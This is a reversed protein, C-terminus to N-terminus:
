RKYQVMTSITIYIQPDEAYNHYCIKNNEMIRALPLMDINFLLPGLISGQPVRDTMKTWESTYNGISVIFDRDNLYSEFWNLVTGSLGM